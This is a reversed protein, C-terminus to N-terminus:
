ENSARQSAKPRQDESDESLFRLFEEDEEPTIEDSPPMPVYAGVAPLSTPASTELLELMAQAADLHRDDMRRIMRILEQRLNTPKTSM